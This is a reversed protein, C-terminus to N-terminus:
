SSFFGKLRDLLSPKVPKPNANMEDRERVKQDPLTQYKYREMRIRDLEDHISDMDEPFQITVTPDKGFLQKSESVFRDFTLDCYEDEWDGLFYFRNSIHRKRQDKFAGFLIPDKDRRHVAVKREAEGTYDTFVVYYEDFLHRTLEINAAIDNPIDREYSALDTIKIVRDSVNDLFMTVDDQHVYRDFGMSLLEREKPVNDIYFALKEMARTQGTTQYKHFLKLSNNYFEHLAVDTLTEQKAKVQEFYETPTLNDM